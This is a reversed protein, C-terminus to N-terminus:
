AIRKLVSLTWFKGAHGPGHDVKSLKASQPDPCGKWTARARSHLSCYPSL